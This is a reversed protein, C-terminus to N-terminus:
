AGQPNPVKKGEEYKSPCKVLMQQSTFTEGDMHGVVVVKKVEALNNPLEGRHIVKCREGKNDVMEFSLTHSMVDQKITGAVVEGAVHMRDDHSIKAEAFNVYPNANKSFAFLVFGIALGAVVVAPNLMMKM